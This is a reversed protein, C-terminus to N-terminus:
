RRYDRNSASGNLCPLSDLLYHKCGIINNKMGLAAILPLQLSAITAARNAYYQPDYHVGALSNALRPVTLGASVDRLLASYTCNHLTWGFLITIYTATMFVEAFNLSYSNGVRIHSRFAAIRWANVAALPLRRYAVRQLPPPSTIEADSVNVIRRRRRRGHFLISLFNFVGVLVIFSALFYWVQHPYDDTRQIRLAKDLSKIAKQSLSPSTSPSLATPTGSSM